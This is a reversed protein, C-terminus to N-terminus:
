SVASTLPLIGFLAVNELRKFKTFHGRYFCKMLYINHTSQGYSRRASLKCNKYVLGAFVAFILSYVGILLDYILVNRGHM